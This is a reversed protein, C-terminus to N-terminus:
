VVTNSYSVAHIAGRRPQNRRMGTLTASVQLSPSACVRVSRHSCPTLERLNHSIRVYVNRRNERPRPVVTHPPCPGKLCLLAIQAQRTNREEGAVANWRMMATNRELLVYYIPSSGPRVRVSASDIHKLCSPIRQQCIIM